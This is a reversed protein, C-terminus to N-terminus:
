FIQPFDPSEKVRFRKEKQKQKAEKETLVVKKRQEEEPLLFEYASVM